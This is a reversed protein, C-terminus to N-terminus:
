PAALCFLVNILPRKQKNKSSKFLAHAKSLLSLVSSVTIKFADDYNDLAMKADIHEQKLLPM